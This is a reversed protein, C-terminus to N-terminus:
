NLDEPYGDAQLPRRQIPASSVGSDIVPARRDVHLHKTSTDVVPRPVFEPLPPPLPEGTLPDEGPMVHHGVPVPPTTTLRAAAGPLTTAARLTADEAQEKAAAYARQRGAQLAEALVGAMASQAQGEDGIVKFHKSLITLAAMKDVRKYKRTTIPRAEGDAGKEWRTEIDLGAVTAAVDDNLEHPELLNGDADFLDRVSAFAVRALETIVREASAGANEMADGWLERCRTRIRRNGLLDQGMHPAFGAAIAAKTSNRHEVYALAFREHQPDALAPM